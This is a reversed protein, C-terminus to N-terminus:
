RSRNKPMAEKFQEYTSDRAGLTEIEVTSKDESAKFIIFRHARRMRMNQFEERVNDAITIGTQM